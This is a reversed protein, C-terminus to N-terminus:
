IGGGREEKEEKRFSQMNQLSNIFPLSKLVRLAFNASKCQLPSFFGQACKPDANLDFSALFTLFSEKILASPFINYHIQLLLFSAL